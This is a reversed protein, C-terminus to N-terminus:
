VTAPGEGNDPLGSLDSPIESPDTGRVALAQSAGESFPQAPCGLDYLAQRAETANKREYDAVDTFRQFTAESAQGLVRALENAIYQRADTGFYVTGDPLEVSDTETFRERDGHYFLEAPDIADM